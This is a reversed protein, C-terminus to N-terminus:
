QNFKPVYEVIDGAVGSNIAIGLTAASAALTGVITGNTVAFVSSGATVIGAAAVIGFQSPFFLKVAGQDAASTDDQVVGIAAAGTSAAQAANDGSVSVLTNASIASAFNFSRIGLDNQTAM